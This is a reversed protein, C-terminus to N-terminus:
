PKYFAQIKGLDELMKQVDHPMAFVAQLQGKPNLLLVSASHDVLYQEAASGTVNPGVKAYLIGLPSALRRLADHSGTAAKFNENFYKVYMELNDLTDREPDVSVFRVEPVSLGARQQALEVLQRMTALTTPCIDPCYTFGFFMLTWHGELSSNDFVGGSTSSLEFPPLSKAPTILTAHTEPKSSSSDNVAKSVLAGIVLAFIALAVVSLHKNM